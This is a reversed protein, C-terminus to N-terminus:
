ELEGEGAKLAAQAISDILAVGDPEPGDGWWRCLVGEVMKHHCMVKDDNLSHDWETSYHKLFNSRKAQLKEKLRKNEAELEEIRNRFKVTVSDPLYGEPFYPEGM